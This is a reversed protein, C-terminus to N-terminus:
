KVENHSALSDAFGHPARGQLRGSTHVWVNSDAINVIKLNTLRNWLDHDEATQLEKWGGVQKYVDARVGFNAGHVHPHTGDSHLTYTHKFKDPVSPGHESFSDVKIIGAIAQYGQNALKIQKILWNPPVKCDADTNALWCYRLEGKYRELSITAALKRAAGVNYKELTVVVGNKNLFKNGIEASHDTSSDVALIIDATVNSPLHATAVLISKLCRPLLKEENCAPILICVHWNKANM